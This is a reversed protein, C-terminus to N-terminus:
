DEPIKGLKRLGLAVFLIGGIALARVPLSGTRGSPQGYWQVLHERGPMPLHLAAIWYTLFLWAVIGIVLFLRGMPGLKGVCPDCEAM